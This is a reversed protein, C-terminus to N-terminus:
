RPCPFRRAFYARLADRTDTRPREAAPVARMAKVIESSKLRVKGPPCYAQARGAAKAAEREARLAAADAKIANSLLKLDGSFMAGFGKAQLAEAKTLFTQVPMAQVAAPVSAVALGILLRFRM